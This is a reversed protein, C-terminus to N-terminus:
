EEINDATNRQEKLKCKKKKIYKKPLSLPATTNAAMSRSFSMM